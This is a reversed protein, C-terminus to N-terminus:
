KIDTKFGSLKIVFLATKVSETFLTFFAEFSTMVVLFNLGACLHLASKKDMQPKYAKLMESTYIKNINIKNRKIDSLLPKTDSTSGICVIIEKPLKDLVNSIKNAYYFKNGTNIM